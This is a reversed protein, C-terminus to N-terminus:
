LEEEIINWFRTTGNILFERNKDYNEVTFDWSTFGDLGNTIVNKVKCLYAEAIVRSCAQPYKPLFILSQFTNYIQPMLHISQSGMEKMRPHVKPFGGGYHWITQEPKADLWEAMEKYGKEWSYDGVYLVQEEAFRQYGLDKFEAPLCMPHLFHKFNEGAFKFIFREQYPSHYVNMVSGKCLYKYYPMQPARLDHEIHVYPVRTLYAFIEGINFTDVFNAIVYLDIDKSSKNLISIREITHGRREAEQMLYYDELEAGRQVNPYFNDALWGIKM